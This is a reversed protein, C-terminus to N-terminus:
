ISVILHCVSGLIGEGAKIKAVMSLLASVGSHPYSISLGGRSSTRFCWVFAFCFLVLKSFSQTTTHMSCIELSIQFSLAFFLFVSTSPFGITSTIASNCVSDGFVFKSIAFLLTATLNQTICDVLMWTTSKDVAFVSNLNDYLFSSLLLGSDSIRAAYNSGAQFRILTLFGIIVVKRAHFNPIWANSYIDPPKPLEAFLLSASATLDRFPLPVFHDCFHSATSFRPFYHVHIGNQLSWICFLRLDPPRRRLTFWRSLAETFYDGNFNNTVRCSDSFLRAQDDNIGVCKSIDHHYLVPTDRHSAGTLLSSLVLISPQSLAPSFRIASRSVTDGPDFITSAASGFTETSIVTSSPLSAEDISSFNSTSETVLNVPPRFESLALHDTSLPNADSCAVVINPVLTVIRQSTPSTPEPTNCDVLTTTRPKLSFANRLHRRAAGVLELHMVLPRNPYKGSYLKTFMELIERHDIEIFFPMRQVSFQFYWEFKSPSIYPYELTEQLKAFHENDTLIGHQALTSEIAKMTERFITTHWDRDFTTTTHDSDTTPKAIESTSLSIEVPDFPAPLRLAIVVPPVVRDVNDSSM